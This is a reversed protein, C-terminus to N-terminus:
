GGPGIPRGINGGGPAPRGGPGDIDPSDCFGPTFNALYMLLDDYNVDGDGNLDAYPDGAYYLEIFLRLDDPSIIGDGNIDGPCSQNDPDCLFFDNSGFDTGFVRVRYNTFEHAGAGDIGDYFFPSLDVTAEGDQDDFPGDPIYDTVTIAWSGASEEDWHKLTTFNYGVSYSTGPDPRPLAVPSFSGWPSTLTILMDGQWDGGITLEMEIHEIRINPKICFATTVSGPQIIFEGSEPIPEIFAADPVAGPGAVDFTDLIILNTSVPVWSRAANVAAEADIIGFGYDDSHRTFAGNVQWWTDGGLPPFFVGGNAFNLPRSTDALIHQVDRLSLSSNADLMLAIVGAAIPAAASTGNFGTTYGGGSTTTSIARGTDGESYTSAFLSSGGQSYGAKVNNDGVAGISIGFRSSAWPSYDVRAGPVGLLGTLGEGYLGENGSSWVTITGKNGRGFRGTRELSDMVFDADTFAQIFPFPANAFGWSNNKIAIRNNWWEFARARVLPTGNRLRVLKSDYAVGAVGVGNNAVAGILGAVATAHSQDVIFPTTDMSLSENWNAVLDPHTTEFNDDSFELIGVTIGDGTIGQAYVASVNLDADPDLANELHWQTSVLPDSPLDFNVKPQEVEVSVSGFVESEELRKALAVAEAVTETEIVSWGTVGPAAYVAPPKLRLSQGPVVAVKRVLDLDTSKVVVKNYVVYGPAVVDTGSFMLTAPSSAAQANNVMFTKASSNQTVELRVPRIAQGDGANAVSGIAAGALAVVLGIRLRRMQIVSRMDM